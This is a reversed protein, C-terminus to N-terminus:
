PKENKPYKRFLRTIPNKNEFLNFIDKYQNKINKFIQKTNPKGNPLFVKPRKDVKHCTFIIKDKKIEPPLSNIRKVYMDRMKQDVGWDQEVIFMWVRKNPFSMIQQLYTNYDKEPTSPDFYHEGPAELLQCVPRGISDLVKLLMFSIVSNGDPAYKDLCLTSFESCMKQYHKDNSPRFTPDPTVHYGHANLYRSLRILTMTKGSTRAGFLVVIPTTPDSVTVLIDNVGNYSTSEDGGPSPTTTGPGPPPTFGLSNDDGINSNFGSNTQNNNNEAM